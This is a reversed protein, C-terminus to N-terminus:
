HIILRKTIAYNKFHMSVFYLGKEELLIGMQTELLEAQMENVLKGQIDRITIKKLEHPQGVEIKFEGTSPNPLINFSPFSSHQSQLGATRKTSKLLFADKFTGSTDEISGTLYVETGSVKMDHINNKFRDGWSQYALINGATDLELLVADRNGGKMISESETVGAVYIIGQDVSIARATESGGGGWDVYWIQNLDKDFKAVFIQWDTEGPLITYGTVYLFEGDSTMGLANDIDLFVGSQHGFLTSDIFSGSQKNFKGILSYGNYLNAISGGGWLGAAYIAQDDVVFHGDQHESTLVAGMFNSWVTTGDFNLKWLGIDGFYIEPKLQQAWGGIYIGDDKIVLGDVEDYGDSAFNLTKDWVVSGDSKDLKVVLMDCTLVSGTCYRGGVYVFTDSANCVYAHQTGAGGYISPSNWLEAGSTDLKYTIIDLGQNSNNISAAWYLHGADDKDIGWAEGEEGVVSPVIKVWDPDLVSQAFSNFTSISLFSLLLFGSNRFALM